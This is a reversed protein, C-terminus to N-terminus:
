KKNDGKEAKELLKTITEQKEKDITVFSDRLNEFTSKMEKASEEIVKGLFVFASNLAFLAEKLDEYTIVDKTTIDDISMQVLDDKVEYESLDVGCRKALIRASATATGRRCTTALFNRSFGEREAVEYITLGTEEEIRARLKKGDIKVVNKSM